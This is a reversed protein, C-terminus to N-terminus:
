SKPQVRHVALCFSETKGTEIAWAALEDAFYLGIPWPIPPMIPSLGIRCVVGYLISGENSCKIADGIAYISGGRNFVIDRAEDYYQGCFSTMSRWSTPTFGEHQLMLRLADPTVDDQGVVFSVKLVEIEPSVDESAFQEYQLNKGKLSADCGKLGSTFVSEHFNKYSPNGYFKGYPIRPVSSVIKIEM